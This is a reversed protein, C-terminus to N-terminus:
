CGARIAGIIKAAILGLDSRPSTQALVSHIAAAAKTQAQEKDRDSMVAKRQQRASLKSLLDYQRLSLRGESYAVKLEATATRQIRRLRRARAEAYGQSAFSIKGRQPNARWAAQRLANDKREEVRRALEKSQEAIPLRSIRELPKLGLEGRSLAQIVEPCGRRQIRKVRAARDPSQAAQM